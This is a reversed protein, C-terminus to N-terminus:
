EFQKLNKKNVNRNSSMRLCTQTSKNLKISQMIEKQIGNLIENVIKRDM